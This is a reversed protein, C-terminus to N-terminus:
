LTEDGGFPEKVYLEKEEAQYVRQTGSASTAVGVCPEEGEV